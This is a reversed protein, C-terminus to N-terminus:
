HVCMQRDGKEPLSESVIMGYLLDSQVVSYCEEVQMVLAAAAVVEVAAVRGKDGNNCDNM